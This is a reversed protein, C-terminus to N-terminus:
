AQPKLKDPAFARVLARALVNTADLLPVGHLMPETLALPIETCGLIVAQAGREALRGAEDALLQRAKATVPNSQAKIGFTTDAIASQVRNRGEEDPFLVTLGAEALANQYIGTQYTGITGLVGVTRVEPHVDRLYEAVANIMHIFKAGTGTAALKPLAAELIVPSHATNCPMGIVTAGDQALEAMVEGLIEGPNDPSKGTLFLMRDMILNSRSHHLVPLHEQDSHAITADFIKRMLDLGAYPGVGGVIGIAGKFAKLMFTGELSHSKGAM